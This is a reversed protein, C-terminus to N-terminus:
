TRRRRLIRAAFGQTRGQKKYAAGRSKYGTPSLRRDRERQRPKDTQEALLGVIRCKHDSYGEGSHAPIALPDEARVTVRIKECASTVDSSNGGCLPSDFPWLM